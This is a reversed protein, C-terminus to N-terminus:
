LLEREVLDILGDVDDEFEDPSYGIIEGLREGDLYVDCGEVDGDIFYSLEIEGIFTEYKM